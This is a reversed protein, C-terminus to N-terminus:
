GWGLEDLRDDDIGFHHALEHVVTERVIEALEHRSTARMEIPRRFLTIRDPLAPAGHSREPQPIGQYLGLLVAPEGETVLDQIVDEAAVDEVTVEVNDLYDLLGRPLSALARDVLRDFSRPSL